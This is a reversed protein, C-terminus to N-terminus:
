CLAGRWWHLTREIAEDLGIEVALGLETRARGTDPVYRPAAGEGTPAMIRVRGSLGAVQAVRTALEVISCAEESGVNYPRMPEGRMLITLLWIVLDSAHMYSRVPRGDGQVTLEKGALADGIFNGVAFHWDLPLRPGVFAYCRAIKAELGTKQAAIALQLEAVRKGEAYVSDVMTTDPGGPWTEPMRAVDPPQRGYVAGSSTLLLRRARCRAALELVRRTGVYMTELAEDPSSANFRADVSTAAHIIHSFDGEPLAFDRVDGKLWSCSGALQPCGALVREPDRSLVTVDINIGLEVRAAAITELLWIGFFGTGGTIFLREGDLGQWISETRELIHHLDVKPLQPLM